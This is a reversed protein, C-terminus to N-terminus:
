KRSEYISFEKQLEIAKAVYAKAADDKNEFYGICIEKGKFRIRARWTNNYKHFSVGKYKLENFRPLRNCCNQYTEVDRLNEIKNDTKIGNIHDITKPLYQHHMMFIIRHALMKKNNFGVQVYGNQNTGCIKTGKIARNSLTKKWYLFGEFYNFNDLIEKHTIM